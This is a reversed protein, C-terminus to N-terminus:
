EEEVPLDEQQEDPNPEQDSDKNSWNGKILRRYQAYSM